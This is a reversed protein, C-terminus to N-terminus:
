TTRCRLRWGSYALGLAGLLAAGPVPVPEPEPGPGPPTPTEVHTRFALDSLGISFNQTDLFLRGAPYQDFWSGGLSTNDFTNQVGIVFQNGPLFYLGASSVDIFNWDNGNTFTITSQFDPADSQWASGVNIFVDLLNNNMGPNLYCYLDIGKLSGETGVTVEQQWIQNTGAEFSSITYPNVQDIRLDADVNAVVLLATALVLVSQRKM